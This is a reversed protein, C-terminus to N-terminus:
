HTKSGTAIGWYNPNFAGFNYTWTEPPTTLNLGFNETGKGIQPSFIATTNDFNVGAKIAKPSVAKTLPANTKALEKDDVKKMESFVTSVFISCFLLFACLVTLAICRKM